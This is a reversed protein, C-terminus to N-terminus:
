RRRWRRLRRLAQGLFELPAAAAVRLAARPRDGFGESPLDIAFEVDGDESTGTLEAGARELAGLVIENDPSVVATYRAIGNERARETLRDLLATGLGRRHWADVVVVAAEASERDDPDRVYRAVGVARDREPDLAILAEHRRHDVDTLYRLDEDSLDTTPVLFRLRRSMDSLEHYLAKVLGADSPELPRIRATSDDRLRVESAADISM